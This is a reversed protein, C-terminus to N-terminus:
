KLMRKVAYRQTRLIVKNRDFNFLTSSCGSDCMSYQANKELTQIEEWKTCRYTCLICSDFSLYICRPNRSSQAKGYVCPSQKCCFGCRVCEKDHVTM